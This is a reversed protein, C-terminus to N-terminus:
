YCILEEFSYDPLVYFTRGTGLQVCIVPIKNSGFSDKDLKNMLQDTVRFSKANTQKVEVFLLDTRIDGKTYGSGSAKTTKGGILKAIEKETEKWKKKRSLTM